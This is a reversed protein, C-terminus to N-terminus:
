RRSSRRSRWIRFYSRSAVCKKRRLARRSARSQHVAEKSIETIIPAAAAADPAQAVAAPAAAREVAQYSIGGSFSVVTGVKFPMSPRYIGFDFPAGGFPSPGFEVNGNERLKRIEAAATAERTPERSASSFAVFLDHLSKIKRENPVIDKNGLVEEFERRIEGSKSDLMGCRELWLRIEQKNPSSGLFETSHVVIPRLGRM